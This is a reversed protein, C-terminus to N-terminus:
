VSTAARIPVDADTTLLSSAPPSTFIDVICRYQAAIPFFNEIATYAKGPCVQDEICRDDAPNSSEGFLERLGGERSLVSLAARSATWPPCTRRRVSQRERQRYSM